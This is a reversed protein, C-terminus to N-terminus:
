PGDSSSIEFPGVTTRHFRIGTVGGDPYERVAVSWQNVPLLRVTPESRFSDGLWRAGLWTAILVAPLLVAALFMHRCEVRPSTMDGTYGM